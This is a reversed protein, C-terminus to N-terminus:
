LTLCDQQAEVVCPSSYAAFLSCPLPRTHPPERLLSSTCVSAPCPQMRAAPAAGRLKPAMAYAICRGLAVARISGLLVAVSVRCALAVPLGDYLARPCISKPGPQHCLM